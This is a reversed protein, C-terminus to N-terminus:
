NLCNLYYIIGMLEVNTALLNSRDGLWSNITEFAATHQDFIYRSTFSSKYVTDYM